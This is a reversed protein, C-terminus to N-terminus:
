YQIIQDTFFTSHEFLVLIHREKWSRYVVGDEEEGEEQKKM